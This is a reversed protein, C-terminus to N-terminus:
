DGGSPVATTPQSALGSGPQNSAATGVNSQLGINLSKFGKAIMMLDFDNNVRFGVQSIEKLDNYVIDSVDNPITQTTIIQNIDVALGPLTVGLTCPPVVNRGYFTRNARKKIVELEKDTKM